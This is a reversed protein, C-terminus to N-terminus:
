TVGLQSPDPAGEFALLDEGVQLPGDYSLRTEAILDAM